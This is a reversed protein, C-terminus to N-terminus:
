PAIVWEGKQVLQARYIANNNIKEKIIISHARNNPSGYEEPDKYLPEHEINPCSVTLNRLIGVTFEWIFFSLHDKFEGTIFHVQKSILLRSEEATAYRNWDSSLNDGTKPTNLFATEKPLGKSCLNKHVRVFLKDEDPIIEKPWM